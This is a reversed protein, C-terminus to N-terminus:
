RSNVRADEMTISSCLLVPRLQTQYKHSQKDMHHTHLAREVEHLLNTSKSMFSLHSGQKLHAM